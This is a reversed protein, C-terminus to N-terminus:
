FMSIHAASAIDILSHYQLSFVAKRTSVCGQPLCTHLFLMQWTMPCLVVQSLTTQLSCCSGTRRVKVERAGFVALILLEQQHHCSIRSSGSSSCLLGRSNSSSSGAHIQSSTQGSSSPSRICSRLGHIRSVDLV